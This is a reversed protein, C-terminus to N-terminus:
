LQSATCHDGNADYAGPAKRGYEDASLPAGLEAEGEFVDNLDIPMDTGARWFLDWGSRSRTQDAAVCSIQRSPLGAIRLRLVAAYAQALEAPAIHEEILHDGLWM